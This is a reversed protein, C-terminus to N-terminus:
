NIQPKTDKFLLTIGCRTIIIAMIDILPGWILALIVLGVVLWVKYISKEHVEL